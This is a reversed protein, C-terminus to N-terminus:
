LYCKVFVMLFKDYVVYLGFNIDFKFESKIYMYNDIM